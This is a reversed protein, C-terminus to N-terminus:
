SAKRTRETRGVNTNLLMCIFGLSTELSGSAQFRATHSVDVGRDDSLSPGAWGLVGRKRLWARVYGLVPGSPRQEAKADLLCGHDIRDDRRYDCEAGTYRGSEPELLTLSCPLGLVRLRSGRRQHLLGLELGFAQDAFCRRLGPLVYRGRARFCFRVGLPAPFVDTALLLAQHLFFLADALLLSEELALQGLDVLQLGLELLTLRGCSFLAMQQLLRHSDLPPLQLLDRLHGRLFGLFREHLLDGSLGLPLRHSGHALELLM